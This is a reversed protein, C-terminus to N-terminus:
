QPTKGTKGFILTRVPRRYGAFGVGFVGRFLLGSALTDRCKLDIAFGDPRCHYRRGDRRDVAIGKPPLKGM